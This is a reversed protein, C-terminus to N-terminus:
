NRSNDAPFLSGHAGAILGCYYPGRQRGTAGTRPETVKISAGRAFTAEHVLNPGLPLTMRLDVPFRDPGARDTLSLQEPRVSLIAREGPRFAHAAPATLVIGADLRISAHMRDAAVIEGQLLNTSGIFQTVFLSAPQDYIAAPTAVQEVRGARLVAIRDAMSMAEDQDHTVLITTIGLDRQLSKVELQMDLRLNKDLAGFPEDLLLIRPRIALARALAVRQQQGGSLQRPLRDAMAELRVLELMQGVRHAVDSAKAGQAELGYAVNRAVSLHPFLAYNQFVIGARRRGPPLHGISAGDMLVRGRTPAVFGAIIRLLTTKGCGSPGLLALVEAPKISITVDDVATMTGYRHTIGDLDLAHSTVAGVSAVHSSRARSNGDESRQNTSVPV